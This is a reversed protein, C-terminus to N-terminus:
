TDVLSSQDFSGKVIYADAGVQIGRRRDSEKERSTIIIIPKHQYRADQRLKATLTFGDMVPMEVDTLVADFDEALAKDLGDQGNEALTVQYGWAELVDREIERTNLSDDVVLIRQRLKERGSEAKGRDPMFSRSRKSLTMLHPVHLLSVLHNHGTTVMGSILSNNRLHPPLQKIVLDREDILEDIELALKEHHLRTILLLVDPEARAPHKSTVPMPPLDMLESLKMVPVFENRVIVANRDAVEVMKSRPVSVLEAVYQATFGLLQGSVRVLLVRMMALSLPLRLTFRAGEGARSEISIAGQLNDIVTRKVVDMGVGRGSLDTIMASTSFGPLFILDRVEQETLSELADATILQKSLAKNRIADLDVGAGDDIIEIVVWGGDQSAKLQLLGQEPKGAALRAQATEIGHDLANRLLHIVPDALQDIMQRDLEIDAGQVRCEVQKGLSRALDRVLRTAPEFVISLPLMRMQLGIDHLDQMLLEQLQIRDKLTRSFQQLGSALEADEKKQAQLELQQAIRTMERLGAHSSVVEGMLKILEELKSLRIRVTESTRLAAPVLTDASDAPSPMEPEVDTTVATKTAGQAAATLATCLAADAPSLRDADLTDSLTAIYDSLQDVGQYLLGLNDSDVHVQGERLASLLDELSHATETIPFLKLMRSSGKLTHASRFLSNIQEANVEGKELDALGEAMQSLHDQAEEIFRLLFKKIDLAM